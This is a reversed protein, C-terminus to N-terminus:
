TKSELNLAIRVDRVLEQMVPDLYGIEKMIFENYRVEAIISGLFKYFKGTLTKQKGTPFKNKYDMTVTGKITMDFKGHGLKKNKNNVVVEKEYYELLHLKIDIIYKYFESKKRDGRLEIEIERGKFDSPKDKYRKEAWKFRHKKFWTFITNYVKDLSFDGDFKVRLPKPSYPGAKKLVM